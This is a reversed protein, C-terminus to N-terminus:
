CYDEVSLAKAIEGRSKNLDGLPVKYKLLM